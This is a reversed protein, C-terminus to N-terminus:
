LKFMWTVCDRVVAQFGARGQRLDVGRPVTSPTFDKRCDEYCKGNNLVHRAFCGMSYFLPARFGESVMIVPLGGASEALTRADESSGEIWAYAFLLRAVKQRVLGLTRSNAAYLYIDIYFVIKAHGALEGALAVHSLNNLGVALKAGRGGAARSAELLKHEWDHDKLIVPPLPLWVHGALEPLSSVDLRAPDADVFPVPACAPPSIRQRERLLAADADTLLSPAIPAQAPQAPTGAGAGKVFAADLASYFDNKV